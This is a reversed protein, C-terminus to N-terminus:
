KKLVRLFQMWVGYWPFILLGAVASVLADRVRRKQLTASQAQVFDRDTLSVGGSEIAKVSWDTGRVAYWVQAAWPIRFGQTAELRYPQSEAVLKMFQRYALDGVTPKTVTLEAGARPEVVLWCRGKSCTERVSRVDQSVITRRLVNSGNAGSTTAFETLAFALLLVAFSLRGISLTANSEGSSM